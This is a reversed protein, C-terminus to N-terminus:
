KKPAAEPEAGEAAVAPTAEAATEEAATTTVRSVLVSVVPEHANNLLTINKFSLDSVRISQGVDLDDVNIELFDPLNKPLGKVTLNRKSLKLYGGKKVGASSGTIHVPIDMIVPKDPSIQIFDIHIIKDTVPHFQIEKMITKYVEGEVDLEVQYVNPTYVVKSLSLIPAHFNVNKGNGYIICPVNDEKRLIKSAKKGLDNRLFGKIKITKM